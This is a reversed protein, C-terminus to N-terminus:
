KISGCATAIRVMEIDHSSWISYAIVSFTGVILVMIVVFFEWGGNFVWGENNM